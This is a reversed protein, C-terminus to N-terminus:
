FTSTRYSEFQNVWVNHIGYRDHLDQNRDCQRFLDWHILRRPLGAIWRDQISREALSSGGLSCGAAAHRQRGSGGAPRALTGPLDTGRRHAAEAAAAPCTTRASRSRATTRRARSRRPVAREFRHSAACFPDCGVM